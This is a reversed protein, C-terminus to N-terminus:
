ETQELPMCSSSKPLLIGQIKFLSQKPRFVEKKLAENILSEMHPVAKKIQEVQDVPVKILEPNSSSSIKNLLLLLKWDSILELKPSLSAFDSLKCAYLSKQKEGDHDTLFDQVSIMVLIFDIDACAVTKELQLGQQLGFDFVKAGIGLVRKRDLQRSFSYNEYKPFLGFLNWSEPKQFSFTKDENITLRKHNFTLISKWFPFLDPLDVKPLHESVKQYDFKAANGTIEQVAKFIDKGGMKATSSDFWRSLTEADANQPAKGFLDDFIAPSTMGLVLQFMDEKEEMVASFTRNIELLKENLKDWIRSEVTAPNRFNRVIVKETQGYRNLRGVRQHLRMPNWPLDVHFLIHCKEQLDIGEGGAETAILFRSKGANFQDAAYERQYAIKQIRGDPLHVQDLAEDGNIFVASEKGYREILKELLLRQTSKYETFFLIQEEPYVSEILDMITKIKTEEQIQEAHDILDILFPIENKILAIHSSIAAEDLEAISDYNEEEQNERYKRLIDSAKEEEQEIAKLKTLRNKLAHTIAAVSSSALKQMSILILMMVNGRTHDQEKAYAFGKSIFETLADYFSQEEPSYDYTSSLVEPEQFLRKGHLDTVNYKNNRVMYDKLLPLQNELPRNPSFESSLLSMLALFNYNKGKHPTGTFFILGNIKQNEELKKLLDYALTAGNRDAKNLHHAEDVIVLDWGLSSLLREMRGNHDFQLTNYSAVVADNIEWYSSKETDQNTQYLHLRIDFMDKMRYQWQSALSAPTLILLRAIKGADYFSSIIIGAEITKGLGVDDAVLLRCPTKSKAQRCVWLQHPLLDIKSRGFVGWKDNISKIALAQFHTIVELSTTLDGDTLIDFIDKLLELDAKSCIEIKEDFRIVANEGLDSVVTGQGLTKHIVSRNAPFEKM